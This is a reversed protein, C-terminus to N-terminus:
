HVLLMNNLEEMALNYNSIARQYLGREVWADAEKVYDSYLSSQKMLQSGVTFWGIVCIVVM